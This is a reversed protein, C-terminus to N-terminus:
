SCAPLSSLSFRGKQVLIAAGADGVQSLDGTSSGETRILKSTGPEVARGGQRYGRNAPVLPRLAGANGATDVDTQATDIISDSEGDKNARCSLICIAPILLLCFNQGRM